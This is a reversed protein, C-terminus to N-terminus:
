SVQKQRPFLTLTGDTAFRAGLKKATPIRIGLTSAHGIWWLSAGSRGDSTVVVDERYDASAARLASGHHGAARLRFHTLALVVLREVDDMVPTALNGRHIPLIPRSVAPGIAGRRSTRVETRLPPLDVLVKEEKGPRGPVARGFVFEADIPPVEVMSPAGKAYMDATVNAYMRRPLKDVISAMPELMTRRIQDPTMDPTLTVVARSSWHEAALTDGLPTVTITM